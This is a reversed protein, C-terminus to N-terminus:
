GDCPKFFLTSTTSSCNGIEQRKKVPPISFIRCLEVFQKKACSFIGNTPLTSSKRSATVHGSNKEQGITLYDM